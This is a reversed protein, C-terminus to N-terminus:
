KVPADIVINYRICQEVQWDTQYYNPYEKAEQAWRQCEDNEVRQAIKDAGWVILTLAGLAALAGIALWFILSLIAEVTSHGRNNKM